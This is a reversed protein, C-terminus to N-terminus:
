TTTVDGSHQGSGSWGAVSATFTGNGSSGAYVGTGSVVTWTSQLRFPNGQSVTAQNKWWNPNPVCVLLDHRLTLSGSGDRMAILEDTGNYRFCAGVFGIAGTPLYFSSTAPKGAFTGSGCFAYIAPDCDFGHAILAKTTYTFDSTVTDAAAPTAVGSFVLGVTSIGILIRRFM